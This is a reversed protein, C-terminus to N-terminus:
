GSGARGTLITTVPAAQSTFTYAAPTPDANNFDDVARVLLVHDGGPLEELPIYHFPQDCGEWPGSDLSCEFSLEFWVTGNDTGALEFRITDPEILDLQALVTVSVITTEPPTVDQVEWEWTAPTQDVIQEGDINFFQNMAQVEFEHSDQILPGAIYPSTCPTLLSGDVSCQFTADAQDSAFTFTASMSGSIEDPGTLIITNPEGIVTWTYSAPTQDVNPIEAIDFARVRITHLGSPLDTLEYIAECGEWPSNDLM